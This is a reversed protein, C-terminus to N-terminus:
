GTPRHRFRGHRRETQVVDLPAVERHEIEYVTRVPLGSFLPKIETLEEVSLPPVGSPRLPTNLEVADPRLGRLHRAVEPLGQRGAAVCMVQVCLRGPFDRRFARLGELAEAMTFTGVPRNIRRFSTEDGADLKTLVTDAAALDRRVDERVLLLGNTIVAIRGRRMRRLGGIIEGLNAALTPEGRGTVTLHDLSMPPLRRVEDLIADTSVFVRRETSRSATRGLQCYLCDMNCVKRTQSLPDVGLSVGLRWSHVPGFLYRFPPVDTGGSSSPHRKM